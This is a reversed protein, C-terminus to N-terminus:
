AVLVVFMAIYFCFILGIMININYAIVASHQEYKMM